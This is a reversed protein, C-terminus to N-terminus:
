EVGRYSYIEVVRDQWYGDARHEVVRQEVHYAHILSYPEDGDAVIALHNATRRWRCLAIDGPQPAGGMPDLHRQLVLRVYDEPPFERYPMEPWYLGVGIVRGVAIILGVCDIGDPTRGQHVFPTGVLQRAATIM